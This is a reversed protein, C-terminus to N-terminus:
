HAPPTTAAPVVVQPPNPFRAPIAPQRLAQVLTFEDIPVEGNVLRSANCTEIFTDYYGPDEQPLVFAKHERGQADFYAFYPLATLDGRRRATFTIWRENSSWTPFTCVFDSNLVDLRRGTKSGLDFLCLDANNQYVAFTTRDCLGCLVYRGDSSAQPFTCSKGQKSCEMLMEPTGWTDSAVDYSIRMLDFRLKDYDKYAPSPERRCRIYFISKGDASWCPHTQIYDNEFVQPSTNLTNTEVNYVVLDGRIHVPEFETLRSASPFFGHYEDNASSVIHAGDPHWSAFALPRKLPAQLTNIKRISGDRVFVMGGNAGRLHFFFRNPNYQQPTHCNFCYAVYPPTLIPKTEFSELDRQYLGRIDTFQNNPAMRRYVLHSDIPEQAVLNTIRAYQLWAGDAKQLYVDYYLNKGRNKALLQRWVKASIRCERGPCHLEVPAAGDSSIRVVCDRGEELVRFNLPAINPPIAIGAYDPAIRPPAQIGVAASLNPARGCAALALLGAAIILARISGRRTFLM